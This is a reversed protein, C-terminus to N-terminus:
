YSAENIGQIQLQIGPIRIYYHRVWNKSLIGRIESLQKASINRRELM